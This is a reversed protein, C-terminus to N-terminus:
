ALSILKFFSEALDANSSGREAVRGPDNKIAVIDGGSAIEHPQGDKSPKPLKTRTFRDRQYILHLVPEIKQSVVPWDQDSFGLVSQLHASIHDDMWPKTTPPLADQAAFLSGTKAAGLGLAITTLLIDRRSPM